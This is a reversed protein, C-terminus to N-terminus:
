KSYKDAVSSAAFSYPKVEVRFGCGKVWSTIEKILQKTPGNYGADVHICLNIPKNAIYVKNNVLEDRMAGLEQMEALLKDALDLSIETEKYLKERISNTRRHRTIEYFFIGGNGVIRVVVVAVIKTKDFNQSDTGIIIEIEKSSDSKGVFDIIKDAMERITLNGYTPSIM